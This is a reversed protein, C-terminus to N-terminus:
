KKGLEKERNGGGESFGKEEKKKKQPSDKGLQAITIVRSFSKTCYRYENDVRREFRGTTTSSWQRNWNKHRYSRFELGVGRM